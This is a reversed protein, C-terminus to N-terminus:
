APKKEYAPTPDPPPVKGGVGPNQIKFSALYALVLVRPLLTIFGEELGVVVLRRPLVVWALPIFFTKSKKM